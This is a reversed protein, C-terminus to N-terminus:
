AMDVVGDFVNAGNHDSGWYVNVGFAEAFSADGLYLVRRVGNVYLVVEADDYEAWVLARLAANWLGTANWVATQVGAGRANIAVTVTNPTRYAEIYNNADQRACFLYERTQGFAAANAIGHRPTFWAPGIMGRNTKMKYDIPQTLADRGDVRM